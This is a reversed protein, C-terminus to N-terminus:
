WYSIVVSAASLEAPLIITWNYGTECTFKLTYGTVSFPICECYLWGLTLSLAPDFFREAFTLHGGPIPLFAAM